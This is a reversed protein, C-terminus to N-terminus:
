PNGWLRIIGENAGSAILDGGPSFVAKFVESKHNKLEAALFGNEKEVNWIQVLGDKTAALLLSGDPSFRLSNVTDFNGILLKIQAGTEANWLFIKGKAGGALTKGDNSFVVTKILEDQGTSIPHWVGTQSEWLLAGQSTGSAVWAGDPSFAVGWGGYNSRLNSVVSGTEIDILLVRNDFMSAALLKNGHAIAINSASNSLKITRLYQFPDVGYLRIQNNSLLGILSSDDSVFIKSPIVNNLPISDSTKMTTPDILNLSNSGANVIWKADQTWDLDIVSIKELRGLEVVLEVVSANLPEVNNLVATPLETPMAASAATPAQVTATPQPAVTATSVPLPTAPVDTSLATETVPLLTSVSNAQGNSRLLFGAAGLAALLVPVVVLWVPLRKKRAPQVEAEEPSVAAKVPKSRQKKGSLLDEMASVFAAMDTYRDEPRKAMAKMIVAEADPSIDKLYQRPRPIPDNVHKLSVEIPSNATYPKHGTVMEFFMVGLSYVDSRADITKGQIQEPSMYTPTGILVGTGTIGQSEEADILKAIGFDTILPQGSDNFLINSPKIDRHVIRAKQHAYHLANGIPILLNAAEKVSYVRNMQDQLTGGPIYEMVLYPVNNYEGYDWVMVINPHSMQALKRAELTFRRLSKVSEQRNPLMVKIAVNRALDVDLGRYVVATGGKGLEEIIQYKGITQGVLSEM